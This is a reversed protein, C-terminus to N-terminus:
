QKPHKTHKGHAVEADPWRWRAAALAEAKTIPTSVMCCIQHGGRTIIWASHRPERSAPTAPAAVTTSAPVPTAPASLASGDVQNSQNLHEFLSVLLTM